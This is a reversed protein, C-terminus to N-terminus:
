QRHPNFDEGASLTNYIIRDWRGGLLYYYVLPKPHDVSTLRGLMQTYDIQRHAMSAFVMCGFMYGDWGFGMKAQVIFYCDEAQQADKKTQDANKTRGDLIFVPKDSKLKAAMDDIQETYHCVVIVKRYGSGIEKIKEAKLSQEQLHDKTWHPDEDEAYVRPPTKITIVESTEPPLSDVCDALSVVDAYKYILENAKARWGKNPFFAPRPLFPKYELTYFQSQFEKWPRFHGIYTLLTHISAPDNSLPTATLLLVHMDPNKKILGYLAEVLQSRKKTIFLPAAFNHAEDVVICSADM